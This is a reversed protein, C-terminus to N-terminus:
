KLLSVVFAALLTLHLLIKDIKIKLPCAQSKLKRTVTSLMKHSEHDLFSSKNIKDLMALSEAFKLKEEQTDDKEEYDDVVSIERTKECINNQSLFADICDERTKQRCDIQCENIIPQSAPIDADFKDCEAALFDSNLERVLGLIRGIRREM